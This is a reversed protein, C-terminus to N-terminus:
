RTRTNGRKYEQLAAKVYNSVSLPDSIARDMELGTYGTEEFVIERIKALEIHLETIVEQNPWEKLVQWLGYM